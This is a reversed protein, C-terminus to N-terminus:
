SNDPTDPTIINQLLARCQRSYYYKTVTNQMTQLILFVNVKHCLIAALYATANLEGCKTIRCRLNLYSDFVYETHRPLTNPLTIPSRTTCGLFKSRIEASVPPKRSEKARLGTRPGRRNIQYLRENGSLLTVPAHLHVRLGM